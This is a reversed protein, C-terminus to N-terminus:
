LHLMLQQMDSSITTPISPKWMKIKIFKGCSEGDDFPNKGDVIEFLSIGLAWMDNRITRDIKSSMYNETGANSESDSKLETFTRSIGFDCLKVVANRNVLM